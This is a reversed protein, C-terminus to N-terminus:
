VIQVIMISKHTRMQFSVVSAIMALIGVGQGIIELHDM